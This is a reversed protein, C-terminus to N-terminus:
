CVEQYCDQVSFCYCVVFYIVNRMGRLEYCSVVAFCHGVVMVLMNPNSTQADTTKTAYLNTNGACYLGGGCVCLM